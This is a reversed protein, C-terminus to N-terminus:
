REPSGNFVPLKIVLKVGIQSVNEHNVKEHGLVRQERPPGRIQQLIIRTQTLLEFYSTEFQNREARCAEIENEDQLTNKINSQADDFSDFM